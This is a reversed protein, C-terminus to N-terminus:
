QKTHSSERIYPEKGEESHSKKMSKVQAMKWGARKKLSQGKSCNGSSPDTWKNAKGARAREKAKRDETVGNKAIQLDTKM